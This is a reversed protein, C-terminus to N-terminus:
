KAFVNCYANCLVYVRVELDAGRASNLYTSGLIINLKIQM